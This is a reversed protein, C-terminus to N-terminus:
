FAFRRGKLFSDPCSQGDRKVLEPKYDLLDLHPPGGSMHLYIVRKAKAPFHPPRPALPNEPAAAVRGAGGLLSALAVSGLGLSADTLFHRRTVAQLRELAPDM